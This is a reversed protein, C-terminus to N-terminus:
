IVRRLRAQACADFLAKPADRHIAAMAQGRRSQLIGVCNVVADVGALRPLWADPAVDDNFDCPICECDPFLRRARPVDRVCCVVRHGAAGLRAAIHRGIFGTAGTVLIRM